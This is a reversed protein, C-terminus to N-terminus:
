TKGRLQRGNAKPVQVGKKELATKKAQIHRLMGEMGKVGKKLEDTEATSSSEGTWKPEAVARGTQKLSANVERVLKGGLGSDFALARAAKVASDIGPVIQSTSLLEGIQGVLEKLRACLERRLSVESFKTVIVLKPERESLEEALLTLYKVVAVRDSKCLNGSDLIREWIIMKEERPIYNLDMPVVLEKLEAYPLRRSLMVLIDAMRDKGYGNCLIRMISEIAELSSVAPLVKEELNYLVDAAVSKYGHSSAKRLLQQECKPDMKGTNRDIRDLSYELFERWAITRSKETASSMLNGMHEEWILTGGGGESCSTHEMKGAYSHGWPNGIMLFVM